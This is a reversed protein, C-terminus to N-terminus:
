LQELQKIKEKRDEEEYISYIKMFTDIDAIGNQLVKDYIQKYVPASMLEQRLESYMNYITEPVNQQWSEEDDIVLFGRMKTASIPISKRPVILDFTDEMDEEKFWKSRDGESGYLILDPFRAFKNIIHEKLYTGWSTTKNFENSLDNIGDVILRKESMDPYMNKIVKIRTNVSFPNRLTEKEQASGVAVYVRSSIQLAKDILLKHGLHAHNYRGCVFAFEFAMNTNM